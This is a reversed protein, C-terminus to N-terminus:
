CGPPAADPVVAPPTEFAPASFDFLDLMADSNADRGTLAPLAFLAQVFRLISTHSHTDHSVFGARAYPSVVAVPVRVGLRDFLRESPAALCASPPPVHDFFGGGEDYTFFIALHPWLPSAMAHTVVDRVGREGDHISGPPHEDNPELDVFSVPPVEGRDLEPLFDSYLRVGAHDLSWGLTGSLVETTSANYEAWAVGATDLADFVTPVDPYGGGTSFVGDSTGAYLYDRNPYTGSLVSSFYRDSTAFTTLMWTYFPHDDDEYYGLAGPGNVGAWGDMAGLHWGAHMEFWQHGVDSACPTTLHAPALPVGDRPCTYDAPFGETGHGLRGFMHDFSRNEQMLIIVHTISARLPGVDGLTDEALAGAGFACGQREGWHPDVGPGGDPFLWADVGADLTRAADSSGADSLVSGDEAPPAGTCASLCVVICVVSSLACRGLTMGQGVRLGARASKMTM